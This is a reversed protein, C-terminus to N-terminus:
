EKVSIRVNDFYYSDIQQSSGDDDVKLLISLNHCIMKKTILIEAQLPQLRNVPGQQRFTDPHGVLDGPQEPTANLTFGVTITGPVHSAEGVAARPAADVTLRMTKGVDVSTVLGLPQYLWSSRPNGPASTGTSSSAGLLLSVVQHGDSAAPGIQQGNALRHPAVQYNVVGPKTQSRDSAKWGYIPRFRLLGHEPQYEPIDQIDPKEFSLNRLRMETNITVGDSRHLRRVFHKIDAPVFILDNATKDYQIAEGKKLRLKEPLIAIKTYPRKTAQSPSTRRPKTQNANKHLNIEVEGKFVHVNTVANKEVTVGFETGLDIVDMDPTKVTFGEAGKPVRAFLQGESLASLNDGMVVFEAPGQLIVKAGSAFELEALGLELELKQSSTLFNGTTPRIGGRKWHCDVTKTVRAVLDWNPDNPRTGWYIPMIVVVSLILM